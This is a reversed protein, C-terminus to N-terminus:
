ALAPLLWDLYHVVASNVWKHSKQHTHVSGSGMGSPQQVSVGAIGPNCVLSPSLSQLKKAEKHLHLLEEWTEVPAAYEPGDLKVNRSAMAGARHAPGLSHRCHLQPSSSPPQHHVEVHLHHQFHHPLNKTPLHLPKAALTKLTSYSLPEQLHTLLIRIWNNAHLQVQNRLDRSKINYLCCLVAYVSKLKAM